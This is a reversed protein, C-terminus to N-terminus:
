KKFVWDYADLMAVLQQLLEGVERREHHWVAAVFDREAPHEIMNAMDPPVTTSCHPQVLILGQYQNIGAVGGGSDFGKGGLNRSQDVCFGGDRDFWFDAKHLRQM